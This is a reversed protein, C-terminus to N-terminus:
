SKEDVQVPVHIFQLVNGHEEILRCMDACAIWVTATNENPHVGMVKGQFDTDMWVEVMRQEDNLIGFPTVSGKTLKMYTQLREESAFSLATTGMQMRLQKLDVQKDKQVTLLFHRKGKADRLFLNKADEGKQEICLREMEEMTFVAEHEVWEYAIQRESLFRRIEEKNM